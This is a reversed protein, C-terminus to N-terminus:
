CVVYLNGTVWTVRSSLEPDVRRLDPQIPVIDFGTVDSTLRLKM